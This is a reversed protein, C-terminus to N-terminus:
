PGCIFRPEADYRWTFKERKVERGDKRIIRYADQAFGQAGAASICSPGAPLRVVQPQTINRRASWETSVSDYVKTSWMSVTISNATWSTKIVVGHPTNNRFKMDLNPYFITSEIVAPYRQFYYSHPTHEIDELGAYYAANFLTTTFQSVGGGVGPVLKGDLIVPADKYGQAYSREGTHKNLSFIEGPRVLAGDVEKAAQVINQSRASGLGGTFNTTFTSVREKIGLATAQETSVKPPTTKMTGTLERGETKPLVPLLATSLAATDLTRGEVSPTVKPGTGDVAVTADKPKSELQALRDGLGDRLKAEDVRPTIRGAEDSTLVLSAAIAAPPIAMAGNPTTVTVPGAVAPRALEAVLRDVEEATTAPNVEVLPVPVPQVRLWGDRLAQAAREADLRRGPKPYVPKPTTGDFTIAPLVMTQEDRGATQRLAADLRAADVSVVPAVTRSGFLRGSLGARANAAAAITADVDVALGIAAPDLDATREGIQITAPTATLTDVKGRLAGAADARNRGGLDVGLVKTGRPIDGAYAYAATAGAGVLLAVVAGAALVWRRRSRAPTPGGAEGPGPADTTAGPIAVTDEPDFGDPGSGREAGWGRPAPVPVTAPDAPRNAHDAPSRAEGYLSM